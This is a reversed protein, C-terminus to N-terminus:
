RSVIIGFTLLYYYLYWIATHSVSVLPKFYLDIAPNTQLYLLKLINTTSTTSYMIQFTDYIYLTIIIINYLKKTQKGYVKKM